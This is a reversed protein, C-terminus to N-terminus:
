YIFTLSGIQEINNYIVLFNNDLFYKLEIILIKIAKINSAFVSKDLWSCHM